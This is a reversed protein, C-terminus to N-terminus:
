LISVSDWEVALPLSSIVFDTENNVMLLCTMVPTASGPDTAKKIRSGSYTKERIGSRLGM